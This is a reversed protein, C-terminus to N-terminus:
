IVKSGWEGCADNAAVKQHSTIKAHLQGEQDEEVVANNDLPMGDPGFLVGDAIPPEPTKVPAKAKPAEPASTGHSFDDVARPVAMIDWAAIYGVPPYKPKADLWM